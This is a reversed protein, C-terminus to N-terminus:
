NAASSASNFKTNLSSMFTSYLQPVTTTMSSGGVIVAGVIIAAMLSYELASIGREDRGLKNIIKLM